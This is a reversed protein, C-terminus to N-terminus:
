PFGPRHFVLGRKRAEAYELYDFDSTSHRAQCVAWTLWFLHSLLVFPLLQSDFGLAEEMADGDSGTMRVGGGEEGLTRGALIYATLFRLRSEKDPFKTEIEFDLGAYECFHNAIDWAAPNHAAYEYDILMATGDSERILINGSLLDGHTLVMAHAKSIGTKFATSCGESSAGGSSDHRRRLDQFEVLTAELDLANLRKQKENDEEFTVNLALAFLAEVKTWVDLNPLAEVSEEGAARYEELQHDHLRATAVAIKEQINESTMDDPTIGTSDIFGEVRGNGLLGYIPPALNKRALSEFVFCEWGRNIFLETKEGYVRVIIGALNSKEVVFLRNTIGGHLERISAGKVSDESLHPVLKVCSQLVTDKDEVNVVYNVTKMAINCFNTELRYVPM